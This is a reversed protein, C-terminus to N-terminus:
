RAKEADPVFSLTFCLYTSKGRSGLLDLWDSILLTLGALSAIILWRNTALYLHDCPGSEDCCFLSCLWTRRADCALGFIKDLLDYALTEKSITM